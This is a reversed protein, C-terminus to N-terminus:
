NRIITAEKTSSNWDISVGSFAKAIQSIPIYVRGNIMTAPVEMTQDVGNVTITKSNLPAKIINSGDYITVTKTTGDWVISKPEINLAYAVYRIPLMTRGNKLTPAGDEMPQKVGNLTYSKQKIKFVAKSSGTSTSTNQSPTATAQITPVTVSVTQTSSNGATDTAVVTYTGSATVMYDNSGGTAPISVGAGNVTVSALRNNTISTNPYATIGIGMIGGLDKAVATLSPKISTNNANVDVYVTQSTQQNYSDTVVVTYNGSSGVAYDSTGGSSSFSFNSNNVTVKSIRANNNPTAKITLYWKGNKLAKEVSLTPASGNVDIYLEQTTTNGVTDKVVVKYTNSQTVRYEYTQGKSDFSIGSGNITVSSIAVNDSAKIVLYCNGNKYTKSLDLSPKTSDSVTAYYNYNTTRGNVDTAYIYYNGTQTMEVYFDGVNYNGNQRTASISSGNPPTVSVYNINGQAEVHFYLSLKDNITKVQINSISPGSTTYYNKVEYNKFSEVRKITDRIVQTKENYTSANVVTAGSTLVMGVVLASALKKFMKM